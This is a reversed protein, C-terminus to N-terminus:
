PTAGRIAPTDWIAPDEQGSRWLAIGALGYPAALALHTNLSEANSFWVDHPVGAADTYNFHWEATPADFVPVAGTRAILAQLADWGLAAAPHALGGGAPWDVSYLPAGMVFKAHDPISSVYNYVATFWRIDIASGPASTTWHLGWSMVIVEDAHLALAPYDYFSSRPHNLVDAVKPSVDISLHKGRAHLAAALEAVLASLNDRDAPLGKELDLNIGDYGYLDVLGTLSAVLAQRRPPESVLKHVMSASQCNYRPQVKVGRAM